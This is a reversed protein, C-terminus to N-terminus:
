EELAVLCIRLVIGSSGRVFNGREEMREWCALARSYKTWSVATSSRVTDCCVTRRDGMGSFFSSRWYRDSQVEGVRNNFGLRPLVFERAVLKPSISHQDALRQFYSSLSEVQMTGLGYPQLPALATRAPIEEPAEVRVVDM